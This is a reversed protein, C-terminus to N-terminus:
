LSRERLMKKTRQVKSGALHFAQVLKEKAARGEAQHREYRQYEIAGAPILLMAAVGAAVALRGWSQRPRGGRSRSNWWKALDYPPEERRLAIRLDSELSEIDHKM